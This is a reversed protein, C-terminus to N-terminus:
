AEPIRKAGCFDRIPTEVNYSGKAKRPLDVLNVMSQFLLRIQKDGFGCM